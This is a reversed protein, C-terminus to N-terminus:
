FDEGAWLEKQSTSIAIVDKKLIKKVQNRERVLGGAIVPIDIKDKLREIMEPVVLGPLVEIM